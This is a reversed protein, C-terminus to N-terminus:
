PLIVSRSGRIPLTTHHELNAPPMYWHCLKMDCLISFRVVCNFGWFKCIVGCNTPM